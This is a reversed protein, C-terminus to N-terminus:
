NMEQVKDEIDWNIELQLVDSIVSFVGKLKITKIKKIKRNSIM